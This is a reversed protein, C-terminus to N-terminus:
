FYFNYRNGFEMVSSDTVSRYCNQFNSLFKILFQFNFADTVSTRETVTKVLISLSLNHRHTMTVCFPSVGWSGRYKKITLDVPYSFKKTSESGSFVIRFFFQTSIPIKRRSLPNSFAHIEFWQIRMYFSIFLSKLAM